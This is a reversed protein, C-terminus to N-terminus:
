NIAEELASLYSRFIYYDGEIESICDHVTKYETQTIYKIVCRFSFHNDNKDYGHCTVESYLSHKEWIWKQILTLWLLWRIAEQSSYKWPTSPIISEVFKIDELLEKTEIKAKIIKDLKNFNELIKQKTNM